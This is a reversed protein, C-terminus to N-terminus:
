MLFMAMKMNDNTVGGWGNNKTNYGIGIIHNEDDPHLYSSYGPIKLAGKVLVM